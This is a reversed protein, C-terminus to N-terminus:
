HPSFMDNLNKNDVQGLSKKRIRLWTYADFINKNIMLLVFFYINRYEQRNVKLLHKMYLRTYLSYKEATNINNRSSTKM